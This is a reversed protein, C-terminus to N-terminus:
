LIGFSGIIKKFGWFMKGFGGTTLPIVDDTMDNMFDGTKRVFASTKLRRCNFCDDRTSQSFYILHQGTRDAVKIDLKELFDWIKNELQSGLKYKRSVLDLLMFVMM